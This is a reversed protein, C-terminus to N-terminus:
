CGSRRVVGFPRKVILGATANAYAEEYGKTMQQVGLTVFKAPVLQMISQGGDTSMGDDVGDAVVYFVNAGGNAGEFEPASEVRVNPYNDAMWKLVLYGLTTPTALLDVVSTPFTITIKDKKPDIRDGSQSRLAALSTLIDAIQELTTKSAFTSSGGAGNPLNVYAPLNPENLLGYTRGTGSNYGYFGIYNRQIELAESAAKRKSDVVSLNMVSGRADELRNVEIGSEFRVVTRREFNTNWGGMPSNSKDGYPTAFGAKELIGQVIEEDEWRGVTAIGVIDDIKRAKTL